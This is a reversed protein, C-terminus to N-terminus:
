SLFSDNEAIIIRSGIRDNIRRYLKMSCIENMNSLFENENDAASWIKDENIVANGRVIPKGNASTERYIEGMFTKNSDGGAKVLFLEVIEYDLSLKKKKM